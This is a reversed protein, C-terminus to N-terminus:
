SVVCWSEGIRKEVQGFCAHTFVVCTVCAHIECCFTSNHILRLLRGVRQEVQKIWPDSEYGQIYIYICIYIHTFVYMCVYM